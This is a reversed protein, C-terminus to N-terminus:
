NQYAKPKVIYKSRQALGFYFIQILKSFIDFPSSTMETNGGRMRLGWREILYLSCLYLIQDNFKKFSVQRLKTFCCIQLCVWPPMLFFMVHLDRSIHKLANIFVLVKRHCVENVLKNRVIKRVTVTKNYYEQINCTIYLKSVQYVSM